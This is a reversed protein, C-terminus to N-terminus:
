TILHKLFLKDKFHPLVIISLLLRYDSLNWKDTLLFTSVQQITAEYGHYNKNVKCLSSYSELEQYFLVM